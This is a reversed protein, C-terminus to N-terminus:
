GFTVQIEGAKAVELGTGLAVVGTGGLFHALLEFRHKDLHHKLRHAFGIRRHFAVEHTGGTLVGKLLHIM